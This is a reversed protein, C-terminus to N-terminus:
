TMRKLFVLNQTELQLWLSHCHLPLIIHYSTPLCIWTHFVWCFNNWWYLQETTLYSNTNKSREPSSQHLSPVVPQRRLPKSYGSCRSWRRGVSSRYDVGLWSMKHWWSWRCLPIFKHWAEIYIEGYYLNINNEYNKEWNWIMKIMCALSIPSVVNVNVVVVLTGATVCDLAEASSVVVPETFAASTLIRVCNFAM